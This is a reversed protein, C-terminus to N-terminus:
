LGPNRLRLITREVAGEIDESFTSLRNEIAKITRAQEAMETLRYEIADLRGTIDDPSRVFPEGREPPVQGNLIAALHSPHWDLARSLAELTRASRRRQTTNHQIESVTQKALRSREIVDGQSRELAAMRQNIATAVAAWDGTVWEEASWTMASLLAFVIEVVLKGREEAIRSSIM